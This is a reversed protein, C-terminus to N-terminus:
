AAFDNAYTQDGSRFRRLRELRALTSEQTRYLLGEVYARKLRGAADFHYVPDPGLYLFAAGM